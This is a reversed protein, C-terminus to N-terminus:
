PTHQVASGLCSMPVKMVGEAPVTRGHDFVPVGQHTLVWLTPGHRRLMAARLVYADAPRITAISLDDIDWHEFKEDRGYNVRRQMMHSM